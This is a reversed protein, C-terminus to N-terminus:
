KERSASKLVASGPVTGDPTKPRTNPRSPMLGSGTSSGGPPVSTATSSWIAIV